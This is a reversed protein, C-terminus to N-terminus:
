GNAKAEKRDNKLRVAILEDIALGIEVRNHEHLVHEDLLNEVHRYCKYIESESM